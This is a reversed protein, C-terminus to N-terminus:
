NDLDFCVVDSIGTMCLGLGASKGQDLAELAVSFTAWQEPKASSLGYDPNGPQQPIKDFKKRKENWVARWPAWRKLQKLSAPIADPYLNFSQQQAMM